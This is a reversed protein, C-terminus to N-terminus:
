GRIKQEDYNIINSLRTIVLNTLYNSNLDLGEKSKAGALTASIYYALGKAVDEFHKREIAEM